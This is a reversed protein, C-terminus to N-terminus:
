QYARRLWGVLFKGMIPKKAVIRRYYGEAAMRLAVVLQRDRGTDHAARIAAFTHPGLQGDDAVPYGVARLSRQLLQHARYPGVNVSLDFIKTAVDQSDIQGYGYREWWQRRWIRRADAETLERIQQPGALSMGPEAKLVPLTIGYNTIGGPDDRDDTLGGENALVVEIAPDFEAM